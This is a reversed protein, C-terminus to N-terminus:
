KRIQLIKCKTQPLTESKNEISGEIATLEKLNRSEIYDRLSTRSINLIKAIETVNKGEKLYKIIEDRYVDYKSKSISGKPRGLKQSTLNSERIENLLSIVVGAEAKKSIVIDYKCVHIEVDRIFLCNLIKVIEEIKFSLLNLEYVFLRDKPHLAHLFDILEEREELNKTIPSVEIVKEDIKYGHKVAYDQIAKEQTVITYRKSKVRLYSFNM